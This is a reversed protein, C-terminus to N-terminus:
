HCNHSSIAHASIPQHFPVFYFIGMTCEYVSAGSSLSRQVATIEAQRRDLMRNWLYLPRDLPRHVIIYSLWSLTRTWNCYIQLSISSIHTPFAVGPRLPERTGQNFQPGSFISILHLLSLWCGAGLLTSGLAEPQADPSRSFCLTPTLINWNQETELERECAFRSYGKEFGQLLTLPLYKILSTKWEDKIM